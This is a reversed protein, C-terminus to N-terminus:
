NVTKYIKGEKLYINFHTHYLSNEAIKKGNNKQKILEYIQIEVEEFIHSGWVYSMMSLIDDTVQDDSFDKKSFVYDIESIHEEKGKGM